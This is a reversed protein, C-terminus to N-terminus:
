HYVQWAAFSYTKVHMLLKWGEVKQAKIEQPGPVLILQVSSVTAAQSPRHTKLHSGSGPNQYVCM